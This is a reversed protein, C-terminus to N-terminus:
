AKSRRRRSESDEAEQDSLVKNLTEEALLLGELRGAARGFGFATKDDPNTLSEEAVRSRVVHLEGIFRELVSM